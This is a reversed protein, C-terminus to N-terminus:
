IKSIQYGHSELFEISQKIKDSIRIGQPHNTGWLELNELRDDTTIGNIHHVTEKRGGKKHNYQLYRGISKEMVYQSRRYVNSTVQYPNNVCHDYDKRIDIYIYKGKKYNPKPPSLRWFINHGSFTKSGKGIIVKGESLIKEVKDINDNWLKRARIEDFGSGNVSSSNKRYYEEFTIM